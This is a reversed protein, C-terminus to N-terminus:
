RGNIKDAGLRGAASCWAFCFARCSNMTEPFPIALDRRAVKRMYTHSFHELLTAVEGCNKM